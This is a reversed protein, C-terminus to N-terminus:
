RVRQAYRFYQLIDGTQPQRLLTIATATHHPPGVSRSFPPADALRSSAPPSPLRWLEVDADSTIRFSREYWDIPRKVCVRKPVALPLLNGVIFAHQGLLDAFHLRHCVGIAICIDLLFRVDAWPELSLLELSPTTTSFDAARTHYDCCFLVAGAQPLDGFEKRERTREIKIKPDAQMQRM